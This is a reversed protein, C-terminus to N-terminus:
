IWISNPLCGEDRRGGEWAGLNVGNETEVHLKCMFLRHHDGWNLGCITEPHMVLDAIRAAFCGQHAEDSRRLELVHSSVKVMEATAPPSDSTASDSVFHFLTMLCRWM